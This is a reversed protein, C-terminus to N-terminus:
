QDTTRLEFFRPIQQFLDAAMARHGIETPHSDNDFCPYEQKPEILPIKRATSLKRLEVLPRDLDVPYRKKNQVLWEKGDVARFPSNKAQLWPRLALRGAVGYIAFKAGMKDAEKKMQAVLESTLNWAFQMRASLADPSMLEQFAGAEGFIAAWSDVTDQKLIAKPVFRRYVGKTHYVIAIKNLALKVRDWFPLRSEGPTRDPRKLNERKLLGNEIGYKFHKFAHFMKKNTEPTPALNGMPDNYCFQYVILDPAYQPAELQMAELATDTDWANMGISIIEVDHRGSARFLQELQRTYLADRGVGAGFTYSDGIFLIRYGGSAKKLRHEIDKWGQSNTLTRRVIGTDPEYYDLLTNPPPAWGYKKANPTDLFDAGFNPPPMILQLAIEALALGFLTGFLM